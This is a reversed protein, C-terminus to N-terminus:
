TESLVEVDCDPHVYTTLGTADWRVVEGRDKTHAEIRGTRLTLKTRVHGGEPVLELRM